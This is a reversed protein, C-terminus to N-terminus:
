SFGQEPARISYGTATASFGGDIEDEPVELIIETKPM